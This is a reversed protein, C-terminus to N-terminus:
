SNWVFDNIEHLFVDLRFRTLSILLLLLLIAVLVVLLVISVKVFIAVLIFHSISVIDILLISIENFISLKKLFAFIQELFM